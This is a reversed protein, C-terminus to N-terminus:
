SGACAPTSRLHPNFRWQDQAFLGGVNQAERRLLPNLGYQTTGDAINYTESVNSLRGTLLAYLSQATALDANRVGPITTANFISSVPDGSAVGLTYQAPAGGIAEHMTTRRFTGGATVSHKGKLWTM